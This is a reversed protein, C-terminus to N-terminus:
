LGSALRRRLCPVETMHRRAAVGCPWRCLSAGVKGIAVVCSRRRCRRGLLRIDAGEVPAAPDGGADDLQRACAHTQVCRPRHMRATEKGTVGRVYARASTCVLM